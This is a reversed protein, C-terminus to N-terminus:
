KGPQLRRQMIKEFLVLASARWKIVTNSAKINRKVVNSLDTMSTNDNSKHHEIAEAHKKAFFFMNGIEKRGTLTICSSFYQQM